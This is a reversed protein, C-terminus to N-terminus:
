RVMQRNEKCTFEGLKFGINNIIKSIQLLYREEIFDKIFEGPAQLNVIKTTGDIEAELKSIWNRDIADGEKGFTKAFITRIKGWTGARKINNDRSNSSLSNINNKPMRFEIAMIEKLSDDEGLQNHTAQVQSLIINKDTESLKIHKNLTIKCIGSEEIELQKYSTLLNYAKSRELVSALKKKLHWEPSVQLSYELETLYKEQIELKQESDDLNSKIRFDTNNIKEADRKEYRFAQSMYSFFGKKSYFFRNTIRKSMNKLIENMANLSFERGSSNQLISCDEESLPYFDKLQRQENKHLIKTNSTTAQEARSEKVLNNPHTAKCNYEINADYSSKDEFNNEFSNSKISRIKNKKSIHEGGYLPTNEFDTSNIAIFDTTQIRIDIEPNRFCSKFFEQDISIYLQKIRSGDELTINCVNRSLIGLSELRVFKRRIREKQFNLKESLYDYSIALKGDVLKPLSKGTSYYTKSESLSRFWGFIESLIVICPLDPSGEKDVIKYNWFHPILNSPQCYTKEASSFLTKNNM